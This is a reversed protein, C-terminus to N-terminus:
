ASATMTFVNNGGMASQARSNKHDYSQALQRKETGNEESIWNCSQRLRGRQRGFHTIRGTWRWRRCRRSFHELGHELGAGFRRRHRRLSVLPQPFILFLVRLIQGAIKRVGAVVFRVILRYELARM